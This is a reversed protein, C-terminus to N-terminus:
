LFIDDGYQETRNERERQDTRKKKENKERM